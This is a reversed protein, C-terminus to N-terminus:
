PIPMIKSQQLCDNLRSKGGVMRVWRAKWQKIKNKMYQKKDWKRGQGISTSTSM